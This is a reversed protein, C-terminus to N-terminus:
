QDEKAMALAEYHSIADVVQVRDAEGPNNVTLVSELAEVVYRAAPESLPGIGFVEDTSHYYLVIKV